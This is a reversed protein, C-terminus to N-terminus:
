RCGGGHEGLADDLVGEVEEAAEAARSAGAADLNNRQPGKFVPPAFEFRANTRIGAEELPLGISVICYEEKKQVDPGRAYREAKAKEKEEWNKRIQLTSYFEDRL